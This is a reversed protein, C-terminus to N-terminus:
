PPTSLLALRVLNLTRKACLIKVWAPHGAYPLREVSAGDPGALAFFIPEPDAAAPDSEPFWGVAVAYDAAFFRLSLWQTNTDLLQGSTIEDGIALIEAHM